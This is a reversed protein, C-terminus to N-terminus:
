SKGCEYEERVQNQRIKAGAIEERVLVPSQRAVSNGRLLTQQPQNAAACYAANQGFLGL